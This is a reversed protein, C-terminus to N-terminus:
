RFRWSNNSPPYLYPVLTINSSSTTFNSVIVGNRKWGSGVSWNYQLTGPSNNTNSVNFSKSSPSNCAIATSTPSLNYHPRTITHPCNYTDGYVVSGQKYIVFLKGNEYDDLDTNYITIQRSINVFDRTLSSNTTWSYENIPITELNIEVGRAELKIYVTGNDAISNVNNGNYQDYYKSLHINITIYHANNLNLDINNCNFIQNNIYETNTSIDVQAFNNLSFIILLLILTLKHFNYKTKM